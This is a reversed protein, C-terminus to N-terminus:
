PVLGALLNGGAFRNDARTYVYFTNAVDFGANEIGGVADGAKKDPVRKQIEKFLKSGTILNWAIKKSLSKLNIGVVAVADSPIYRANDPVKRCAALLAVAILIFIFRRVGKHM